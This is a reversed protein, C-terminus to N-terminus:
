RIIGIADGYSTGPEANQMVANMRPQDGIHNASSSRHRAELLAIYKDALKSYRREAALAARILAQEAFEENTMAEQADTPTQETTM